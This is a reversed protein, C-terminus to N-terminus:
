FLSHHYFFYVIEYLTYFTLPNSHRTSCIPLGAISPSATLCSFFFLKVPTTNSTHHPIQYPPPLIIPVFNPPIFCLWQTPPTQFLFWRVHPHLVREQSLGPSGGSHRTRVRWNWAARLQSWTYSFHALGPFHSQVKTHPLCKASLVAVRSLEPESAQLCYWFLLVALKIKGNEQHHQKLFNFSIMSIKSHSLKLPVWPMSFRTAQCSEAGLSCQSLLVIHYGSVSVNSGLTSSKNERNGLDM